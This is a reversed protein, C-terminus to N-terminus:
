LGRFILEEGAANEVVVRDLTPTDGEYGGFQKLQETADAIALEAAVEASEAQFLNHITASVDVLTAYKEM